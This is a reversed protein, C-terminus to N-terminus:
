FQRVLYDINNLKVVVCLIVTEASGVEPYVQVFLSDDPYSAKEPLYNKSCRCRV